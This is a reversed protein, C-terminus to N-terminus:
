PKRERRAQGIEEDIEEDTIADLGTEAAKRRISSVAMQARIRSALALVEELRDPNAVPMLVAYPKGRSTVVVDGQALADRIKGPVNRLDRDSVVRM